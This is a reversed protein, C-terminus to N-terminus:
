NDPRIKLFDLIFILKIQLILVIFRSSLLFNPKLIQIVLLLAWFNIARNKFNKFHYKNGQLYFNLIVLRLIKFFFFKIALVM